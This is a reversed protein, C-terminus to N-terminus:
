EECEDREKYAINMRRCVCTPKWGDWEENYNSKAHPINNPPGHALGGGGWKKCWRCKTPNVEHPALKKKIRSTSRRTPM